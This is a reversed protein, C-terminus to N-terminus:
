RREEAIMAQSLVATSNSPRGDRPLLQGTGVVLGPVDSLDLARETPDPERYELLDTVTVPQGTLTRLAAILSSFTARNVLAPGDAKLLRYISNQGLGAETEVTLATLNHAELYERLKWRTNDM